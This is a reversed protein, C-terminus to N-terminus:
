SAVQIDLMVEVDPNAPDLATTGPHNTGGGPFTAATVNPAAVGISKFYTALEQPRFGGGLELIAITQGAGTLGAPFNSLAAIQPPSAADRGANVAKAAGRHVRFHPRAFPRNDLGTVSTVVDCLNEPLYIDGERGRYTHTPTKYTKLDVGFARNFTAPTGSLVVQRQAPDSRVVRLTNDKAFQVVLAIDAPDAGYEDAQQERSLYQRQEPKLQAAAEPSPLPKKRRVMVTVSFEEAPAEGVVEASKPKQKTSGELRVQKPSASM